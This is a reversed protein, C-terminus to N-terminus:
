FTMLDLKRTRWSKPRMVIDTLLPVCATPHQLTPPGGLPGKVLAWFTRGNVSRAGHSVYNIEYMDPLEIQNSFSPFHKDQFLNFALARSTSGVRFQFKPVPPVERDCLVTVAVMTM